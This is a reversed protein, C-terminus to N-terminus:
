KYKELGVMVFQVIDSFSAIPSPPSFPPPPIWQSEEDGLMVPQMIDAFTPTSPAPILHSLADDGLIVSQMIDPFVAEPLPPPIQQGLEKGTM